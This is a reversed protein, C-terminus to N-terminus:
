LNVNNSSIIEKGSMWSLFIIRIVEESKNMFISNQLMIYLLSSHTGRLHRATPFHYVTTYINICYESAM